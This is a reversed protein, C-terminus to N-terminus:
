WCSIVTSHDGDAFYDVWLVETLQKGDRSKADEDIEAVDEPV